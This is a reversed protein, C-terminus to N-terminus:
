IHVACVRWGTSLEVACRLGEFLGTSGRREPGGDLVPARGELVPDPGGCGGQALALMQCPAGGKGKSWGGDAM